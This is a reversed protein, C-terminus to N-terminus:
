ITYSNSNEEHYNLIIEFANESKFTTPQYSRFPFNKRKSKRTQISKKQFYEFIKSSNSSHKRRKNIIRSRAKAKELSEDFNNIIDKLSAEAKKNKKTIEHSYDQSDDLSEDDPYPIDWSNSVNQRYSYAANGNLIPSNDLITEENEIPSNNESNKGFLKRQIRKKPNGINQSKNKSNINTYDPFFASDTDDSGVSNLNNELQVRRPM